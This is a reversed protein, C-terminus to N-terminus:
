RAALRRIPAAFAGVVLAAAAAMGLVALWDPAYRAEGISSKALMPIAMLAIPFTILAALWFARGARAGGRGRAALWLVAWLVALGIVPWRYALLLEWGVNLMLWIEYM